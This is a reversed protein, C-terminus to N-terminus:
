VSAREAERDVAQVAGGEAPPVSAPRVPGVKGYLGATVLMLGVAYAVICTIITFNLVNADTHSVLMSLTGIGILSWGLYNNLLVDLNRGVLVGALVVVGLVLFIVALTLNAGQGLVRADSRGIGKEDGTTVLGVVGFVVLYLGTLAVLTRYFPRLPHNVPTHM